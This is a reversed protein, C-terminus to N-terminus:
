SSTLHFVALMTRREELMRIKQGPSNYVKSGHSSGHSPHNVSVDKHLGLETALSLALQALMNMFPKNKKFYHSRFQDNAYLVKLSLLPSLGLPM